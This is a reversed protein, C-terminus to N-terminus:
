PSESLPTVGSLLLPFYYFFIILDSPLVFYNFPVAEVVTDGTINQNTDDLTM